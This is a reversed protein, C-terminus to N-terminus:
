DRKVSTSERQCWFLILVSQERLLTHHPPFQIFIKYLHIKFIYSNLYVYTSM